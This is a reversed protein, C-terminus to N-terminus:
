GNFELRSVVDRVSQMLINNNNELLLTHLNAMYTDITQLTPVEKM